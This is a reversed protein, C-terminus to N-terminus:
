VTISLNCFTYRFVSHSHYGQFPESHALISLLCKFMTPWPNILNVTIFIPGCHLKQLASLCVSPSKSSYEITENQLLWVCSYNDSFRSPAERELVKVLISNCVNIFQFVFNKCFLFFNEKFM